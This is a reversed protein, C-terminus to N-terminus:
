RGSRPPPPVRRLGGTKGAPNPESASVGTAGTAGTATRPRRPRPTPGGSTPPRRTQTRSVKGGVLAGADVSVDANVVLPQAARNADTPPEYRFVGFDTASFGLADLLANLTALKIEKPPTGDRGGALRHLAPPTLPYDAVDAMRRGLEAMTFIGQEAMAVRLRWKITM